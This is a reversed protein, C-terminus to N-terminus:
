TCGGWAVQGSRPHHMRIGSAFTGGHNISGDSADIGIISQFFAAGYKGDTYEDLLETMKQAVPFWTAALDLLVGDKDFIITKIM